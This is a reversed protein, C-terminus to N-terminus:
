TEPGTILEAGRAIMTHGRRLVTAVHAPINAVPDADSGCECPEAKDDPVPVREIDCGPCHWGSPPHVVPGGDNTMLRMVVWGAQDGEEGGALAEVTQLTVDYGRYFVAWGLGGHGHRVGVHHAGLSPGTLEPPLDATECTLCTM